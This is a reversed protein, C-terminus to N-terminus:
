IKRMLLIAAFVTTISLLSLVVSFALPTRIFLIPAGKMGVLTEDIINVGSFLVVAIFSLPLHAIVMVAWIDVLRPEQKRTNSAEPTTVGDPSSVVAPERQSTSEPHYEPTVRIQSGESPFSSLRSLLVSASDLKKVEFEVYDQHIKNRASLEYLEKLIKKSGEISLCWIDPHDKLQLQIMIFVRDNALLRQHVILLERRLVELNQQDQFITNRQEIIPEKGVPYYFWKQTKNILNDRFQMLYGSWNYDLASLLVIHKLIPQNFDDKCIEVLKSRTDDPVQIFICKSKGPISLQRNEYATFKRISWPNGGNQRGNRAPYWITYCLEVSIGYSRSYHYIEHEDVDSTKFGHNSVLDLFPTFISLKNQLLRFSPYTILLRGWSHTQRLFDVELAEELNTIDQITVESNGRAM